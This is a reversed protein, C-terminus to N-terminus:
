VHWGDNARGKVQYPTKRVPKDTIVRAIITRIPPSSYEM